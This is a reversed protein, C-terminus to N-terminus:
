CSVCEGKEYDCCRHNGAPGCCGGENGNDGCNSIGRQCSESNVGKGILGVLFLMIMVFLKNINM